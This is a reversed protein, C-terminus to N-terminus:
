VNELENMIDTYDTETLIRYHWDKPHKTMLEYGFGKITKVISVTPWEINDLIINDCCSYIHLDFFEKKVKLLGILIEHLFYSNKITILLLIFQLMISVHKNLYLYQQLKYSILM